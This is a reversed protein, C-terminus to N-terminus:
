GRLTAAVHPRVAGARPGVRQVGRAAAVSAATPGLVVIATALVGLCLYLFAVAHLSAFICAQLFGILGVLLTQMQQAAVPDTAELTRAVRRGGLFVSGIMAMFLVFGVVGTEAM